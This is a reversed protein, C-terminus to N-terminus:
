SMRKEPSFIGLMRPIVPRPWSSLQFRTQDMRINGDAEDSLPIVEFGLQDDNEWKKLAWLKLPQLM